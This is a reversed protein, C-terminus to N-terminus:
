RQQSDESPKIVTSIINMYHRQNDRNEYNVRLIDDENVPFVLTFPHTTDALNVYDTDRDAPFVVSENSKNVMQVGVINQTAANAGYLLEVHFGDFPVERDIQEGDDGDINSSFNLQESRAIDGYSLGLEQGASM